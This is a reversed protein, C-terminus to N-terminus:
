PAQSPPPLQMAATLVGLMNRFRPNGSKEAWAATDAVLQREAETLLRTPKTPLKRAARIVRVYHKYALTPTFTRPTMGIARAWRAWLRAAGPDTDRCSLLRWAELIDSLATVGASSKGLMTKVDSNQLTALLKAYNYELRAGQTIYGLGSVTCDKEAARAPALSVLM